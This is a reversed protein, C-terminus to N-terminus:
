ITLVPPNAGEAASFLVSIFQQGATKITNTVEKIAPNRIHIKTLLTGSIVLEEESVLRACYVCTRM